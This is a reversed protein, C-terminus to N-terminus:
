EVSMQQPVFSIFSTVTYNEGGQTVETAYAWVTEETNHRWVSHTHQNPPKRLPTIWTDTRRHFSAAERLSRNGSNRLLATGELTWSESFSELSAAEYRLPFFDESM